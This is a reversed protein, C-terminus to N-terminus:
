WGFDVGLYEYLRQNHPRFYDELWRRTASNMEQEYHGKNRIETAQPEWDPLGLFDLVLKLTDVEREFFDESKLVLMQERSFFKSWHLLQDVYVGRKLYEFPPRSGGDRPEHTGDEEGPTWERETEIAEEFTRTERTDRVRHQYHSYARDVPNRLLAILRAQPVVEAMRQPVLPDFLYRPTAEGTISRRGDGWRPPPFQSRYWETGRDFHKSFYRVEKSIAREVHPHRTLLDYLTHTGGKATGIIIFDPLAAPEQPAPREDPTGELQEKAARLENELRFIEREKGELMEKQAKIWRRATKLHKEANRLDESQREQQKGDPIAGRTVGSELNLFVKVDRAIGLAKSYRFIPL